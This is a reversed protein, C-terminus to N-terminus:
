AAGPCSLTTLDPTRNSRRVRLRLEYHWPSEGEPDSTWADIRCQWYAPDAPPDLAIRDADPIADLCVGGLQHIDGPSDGQGGNRVLMAVYEGLTQDAPCGRDGAAADFRRSAHRALM